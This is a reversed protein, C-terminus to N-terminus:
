KLLTIYKGGESSLYTNGNYKILTYDEGHDLQDYPVNGDTVNIVKLTSLAKKVKSPTIYEYGYRYDDWNYLDALYDGSVMDIEVFSHLSDVVEDVTRMDMKYIEHQSDIPGLVKDRLSSSLSGPEEVNIENLIDRLKIM